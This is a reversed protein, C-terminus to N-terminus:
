IIFIIELEPHDVIAIHFILENRPTCVYVFTYTYPHM